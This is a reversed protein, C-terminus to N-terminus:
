RLRPLARACLRPRLHRALYKRFTQVVHAAPTHHDGQGDFQGASALELWTESTGRSPAICCPRSRTARAICPRMKTRISLRNDPQRACPASGNQPPCHSAVVTYADLVRSTTNSTRLPREEVSTLSLASPWAPTATKADQRVIALRKFLCRRVPQAVGESHRGQQASAVDTGDGFRETVGADGGASGTSYRGRGADSSPVLADM